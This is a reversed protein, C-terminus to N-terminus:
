SIFKKATHLIKIRLRKKRFKFFIHVKGIKENIKNIMLFDINAQIIM